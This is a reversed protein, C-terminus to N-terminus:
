HFKTLEQNLPIIVQMSKVSEQSQAHVCINNGMPKLQNLTTTNVVSLFYNMKNEGQHGIVTKRCQKISFCGENNKIKGEQHAQFRAESKLHWMFCHNGVEPGWVFFCKTVLLCYCRTEVYSQTRVLTLRFNM